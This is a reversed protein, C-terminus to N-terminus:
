SRDTPYETPDRSETLDHTQSLLLGAAKFFQRATCTAMEVLPIAETVICDALAAFAQAAPTNPAGVTVPGGSDGGAAVAPDLPISGLLQVGIEDALRQGGGSGFITSVSGDAAISASMNEIVGAVRLYGKRAMDAARAAVKQAAFAPTTVILVETRPLMRALGMQIDSTGPPMDILLYDLDGWAVDELFHQVARNLMFGRWMIAQDEGTGEISGMSVIKMLGPGVPKELPIFRARGNEDKHGEIRGEVGLMRPISFGGIDADLVGITLGRGALQAALNATISSKGVGGKGSAIAVIRASPSIDTDIANERAKWRARAMLGKKQETTMVGFHVQVDGVGPIAGVRRKVDKMLQGRMPCGSTTLAVTVGVDGSQSDIDIRQVMGLDVVNDGLEPDIVGLLANRVAEEAVPSASVTTSM